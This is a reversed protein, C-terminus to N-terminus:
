LLMDALAKINAQPINHCGIKLVKSTNELITYFGIKLGHINKGAQWMKLFPKITQIDMTVGQSTKIQNQAPDITVFSPNDIEFSKIFLDRNQLEEPTAKYAVFDFIYKNVTDLLPVNALRKQMKAILKKTKEAKRKALARAKQAAKKINEANLVRELYKKYKKFNEIKLGTINQFSAARELLSKSYERNEKRTYKRKANIDQLIENRFNEKIYRAADKSNTYGPFHKGYLFPVELVEFPCASKLYSLHKGTTATMTDYSCFLTKKGNKDEYLYGITTYYSYYVNGCFSASAARKEHENDYPTYFFAHSLDQISSYVKKM